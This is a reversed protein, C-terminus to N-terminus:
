TSSTAAIKARAAVSVGSPAERETQLALEGRHVLHQCRNVRLNGVGVDVGFTRLEINAAWSSSSGSRVREQGVEM